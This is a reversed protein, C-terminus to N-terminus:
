GSLSAVVEGKKIADIIGAEKFGNVILGPHRHAHYFIAVLWQAGLERTIRVQMNVLM